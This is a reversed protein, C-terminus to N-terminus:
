KGEVITVVGKITNTNVVYSPSGGVRVLASFVTSYYEPADEQMFVKIGGNDKNGTAYRVFDPHYAVASSLDTSASAAGIARKTAGGTVFGTTAGRMYVDFGMIRAVAGESVAKEIINGYQLAAVEVLIDEYMLPDLVLVRGEMPVNQINLKTQANRIDALLLRKVGTNGYVNARTSTGTTALISNSATVTWNWLITEAVKDKMYNITEQMVSMRKDYAFETEEINNVYVPSSVYTAMDYSQETHAIVGVAEPLSLGSLNKITPVGSYNPIIVKNYAVFASDNKGKSYFTNIPLLNEQFDKTWMQQNLAM